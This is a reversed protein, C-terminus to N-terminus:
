LRNLADRIPTRSINLQAALKTESYIRHFENYTQKLRGYRGSTHIGYVEDVSYPLNSLSERSVLVYYNDTDRITRSFDDSSVFMNGEDVFVIGDNIVSLQGKWTTGDVVYCKKDCMLEVSNADGNDIYERIMDILTTKGTASDGRIVTINRRIDFEYRVRKNHVVIHHIGKM